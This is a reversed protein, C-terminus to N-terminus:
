VREQAVNVASDFWPDQFGLELMIESEVSEMAVAQAESDHDMGSLHLVGHITMHAFHAVPQKGQESAQQHVVGPSIVVDGLIALESEASLDLGPPAEFQFSLVNTAKDFGRYQKNLSRMEDNSVLRITVEDTPRNVVNRTKCVWQYFSGPEPVDDDDSMTQVSVTNDESTWSGAPNAATDMHTDTTM